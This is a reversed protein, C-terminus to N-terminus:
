AMKKKERSEEETLSSIKLSNMVIEGKGTRRTAIGTIVCASIKGRQQQKLRGKRQTPHPTEQTRKRGKLCGRAAKPLRGEKQRAGRTQNALTSRQSIKIKVERLL